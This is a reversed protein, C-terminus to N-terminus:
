VIGPKAVPVWLLRWAHAKIRASSTLEWSNSIRGGCGLHQFVHTMWEAPAFRNVIDRKLVYLGAQARIIQEAEGVMVPSDRDARTIKRFQRESPASVPDAILHGVVVHVRADRLRKNWCRTRQTMEDPCNLSPTECVRLAM